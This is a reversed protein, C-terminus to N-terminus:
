PGSRKQWFESATEGWSTKIWGPALCNVRVTPALSMALSKSFAMVAGKTAAFMEGSDGAMGHDAQDWGMNLIVGGSQAQMKAGVLRSLRITAVVDVRWAHELKEDFSWTAADGTLLDVGANNIWIDIRPRWEFAATVLAQQADHTSLDLLVVQACRGKAVIEDAVRRANQASHRAHVLVDAGADALELAIARGIGSSAGTVVATKHTLDFPNTM